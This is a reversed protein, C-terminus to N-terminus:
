LGPDIAGGVKGSGPTSSTANTSGNVGTNTAGSVASSGGLGGKRVWMIDLVVVNVICAAMVVVFLALWIRFGRRIAAYEQANTHRPGHVDPDATPPPAFSPSGGQHPKVVKKTTTTTYTDTGTSKRQPGFFKFLVRPIWLM